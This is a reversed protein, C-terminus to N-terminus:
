AVLRAPPVAAAVASRLAARDFPMTLVHLDRGDPIAPCEWASALLLMPACDTLAADMEPLAPGDLVILDPQAAALLTLAVQTDAASQVAIGDLCLAIALVDRLAPDALALLASKPLHSPTRGDRVPPLM